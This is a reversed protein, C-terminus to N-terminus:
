LCVFKLEFIILKLMFKGLNFLVLIKIFGLILGVVLMDVVFFVWKIVGNDFVFM